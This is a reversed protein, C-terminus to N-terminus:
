LKIYPKNRTVVDRKDKKKNNRQWFFFPFFIANKRLFFFQTVRIVLFTSGYFLHQVLFLKIRRVLINWKLKRRIVVHFM